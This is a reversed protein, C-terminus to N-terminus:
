RLLRTDVGGITIPHKWDAQVPECVSIIRAPRPSICHLASCSQQLWNCPMSSDYGPGNMTGVSPRVKMRLHRTVQKSGAGSLVCVPTENCEAQACWPDAQEKM